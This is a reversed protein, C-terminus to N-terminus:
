MERLYVEVYVSVLVPSRLRLRELPGDMVVSIAAVELDDEREDEGYLLLGM